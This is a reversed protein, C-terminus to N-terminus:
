MCKTSIEEGEESKGIGLFEKEYKVDEKIEKDYVGEARKIVGYYWIVRNADNEEPYFFSM